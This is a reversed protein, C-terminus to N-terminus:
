RSLKSFPRATKIIELNEFPEANLYSKPVKTSALHAAIHLPPYGQHGQANLLQNNQAYQRIAPIDKEKLARAMDDDMEKVEPDIYPSWPYVACWPKDVRKFMEWWTGPLNLTSAASKASERRIYLKVCAPLRLPRRLGQDESLLSPM